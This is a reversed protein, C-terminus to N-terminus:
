SELSSSFVHNVTYGWVLRMATDPVFKLGQIAWEGSLRLQTIVMKVIGNGGRDRGNDPIKGLSKLFGM